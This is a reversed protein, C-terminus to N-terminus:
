PVMTVEAMAMPTLGSVITESWVSHIGGLTPAAFEKRLSASSVPNGWQDIIRPTTAM